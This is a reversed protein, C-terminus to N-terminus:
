TQILPTTAEPSYEPAGQSWCCKFTVKKPVGQLYIFVLGALSGGLDDLGSQIRAVIEDLYQPITLTLDESLQAAERKPIWTSFDDIALLQNGFHIQLLSLLSNFTSAPLITQSTSATSPSSPAAWGYFSSVRRSAKIEGGSWGGQRWECRTVAWWLLSFDYFPFFMLLFIFKCVFLKIEVVTGM